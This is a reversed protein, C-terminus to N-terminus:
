ANLATRGTLQIHTKEVRQRTFLSTIIAGTFLHKVYGIPKTICEADQFL